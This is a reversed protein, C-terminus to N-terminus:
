WARRADEGCPHIDGRASRGRPRRRHVDEGEDSGKGYYEAQLRVMERSITARREGLSKQPGESMARQRRGPGDVGDINGRRMPGSGAVFGNIWSRPGVGCRM